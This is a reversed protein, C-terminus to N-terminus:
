SEKKENELLVIAELATLIENKEGSAALDDGNVYGNIDQGLDGEFLAVTNLISGTKVGRLAGITFLAASEMDAGLVGQKSWYADIAEERDTYFSDHSRGIGIHHRIGQTEAARILAVLVKTDPIAPFATDIYAKSTGEDRVAGNLILLDGLEIPEQLAGCSGIRIMHTVGINHLEEVAIGTSPGGMGTSVVLVPIGKYTGRVSKHERNFAISVANDLFEAVRDVRMPDGPLIAYRAAHEKGCRIHPQMFM